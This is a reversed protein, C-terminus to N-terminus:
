KTQLLGTIDKAANELSIQARQGGHTVDSIAKLMYTNYKLVDPKYVTKALNIQGEVTSASKSDLDETLIPRRETAEVYKQRFDQDTLTSIVGWALTSNKSNRNVTYAWYSMFGSPSSTQRVQPLPAIDYDLNPNMQKIYNERSAYGIMMGVKGQSFLDIANGMSENWSYVDSAPNSFSTYFQLAATGPYYDDGRQSRQQLQFIASKGDASVFNTGNQLMLLYLIDQADNINNSTGLATGAQTIATGNKRTLLKVVKDFDDWTTPAKSLLAETTEDIGDDTKGLEIKLDDMMGKNYYLVLPDSSIPYGFIDGNAGVMENAVATPYMTKFDKVTDSYRSKEYLIPSIKQYHKPVWDNKIMFIDPGSNSAIANVLDEEYTAPNKKVVNLVIDQENFKEVYPAYASEDGLPTWLTVTGPGLNNSSGNGKTRTAFLAICIVAIFLVGGIVGFLIKKNGM